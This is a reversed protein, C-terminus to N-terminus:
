HPGTPSVATLWGQSKSVMVVEFLAASAAQRLWAARYFPPQPLAVVWSMRVPQSLSLPLFLPTLSLPLVPPPPSLFSPPVSSLACTPVGSLYVCYDTTQSMYVLRWTYIRVCVEVQEEKQHFFWIGCIIIQHPQCPNRGGPKREKDEKKMIGWSLSLEAVPQGVHSPPPSVIKNTMWKFRQLRRAAPATASFAGGGGVLGSGFYSDAQGSVSYCIAEREHQRVSGPLGGTQRDTQRDLVHPTGTYTKILTHKHTLLTHTVPSILADNLGLSLVCLCDRQLAEWIKCM